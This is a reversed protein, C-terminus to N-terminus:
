SNSWAFVQLLVSRCGKKIGQAAVYRGVMDEIDFSRSLAQDTVLLRGLTM